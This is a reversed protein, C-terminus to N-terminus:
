RRLLRRFSLIDLIHNTNTCTNASSKRPNHKNKPSRRATHTSAHVMFMLGSLRAWLGHQGFTTSLKSVRTTVAVSTGTPALGHCVAKRANGACTLPLYLNMCLAAFVNALERYISCGQQGGAVACGQGRTLLAKTSAHRDLGTAQAEREHHRWFQACGSPCAYDLVFSLVYM